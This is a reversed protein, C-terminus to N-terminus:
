LDGYARRYSQFVMWEMICIRGEFGKAWDATCRGGSDFMDLNCVFCYKYNRSKSIKLFFINCVINLLKEQYIFLEMYVNRILQRYTTDYVSDADKCLQLIPVGDVSTQEVALISRVLHSAANNFRRIKEPVTGNLGEDVTPM